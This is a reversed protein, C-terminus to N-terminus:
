KVFRMRGYRHVGVSAIQEDGPSEQRRNPDGIICREVASLEIYSRRDAEPCIVCILSGLLYDVQGRVWDGRVLLAVPAEGAERLVTELPDDTWKPLAQGSDNEETQCAKLDRLRYLAKGQSNELLVWGRGECLLRGRVQRGDALELCLVAGWFRKKLIM